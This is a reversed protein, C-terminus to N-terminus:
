DSQYSSVYLMFTWQLTCFASWLDFATNEYDFVKEILRRIYTLIHYKVQVLIHIVVRRKLRTGLVIQVVMLQLQTQVLEPEPKQEEEVIKQVGQGPETIVGDETLRTQYKKFIHGILDLTKTPDHLKEWSILQYFM